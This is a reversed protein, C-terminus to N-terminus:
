NKDFCFCICTHCNSYKDPIQLYIGSLTHKHINPLAFLTGGITLDYTMSREPKREGNDNMDGCGKNGMARENSSNDNGVKAIMDGM